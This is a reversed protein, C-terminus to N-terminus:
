LRNRFATPRGKPAGPVRAQLGASSTKRLPSRHAHSAQLRTAIQLVVIPVHERVFGHRRQLSEGPEVGIPLRDHSGPDFPARRASAVLLAQAVEIGVREDRSGLDLYFVGPGAGEDAAFNRAIELALPNLARTWRGLGVRGNFRADAVDRVRQQRTSIAPHEVALVRQALHGRHREVVLAVELEGDMAVGHEHRCGFVHGALHVFPRALEEPARGDVVPPPLEVEGRLEEPRAAEMEVIPMHPVRAAGTERCGDHIGREKDHVVILLEGPSTRRQRQVQRLNLGSLLRREPIVDERREFRVQSEGDTGDLHVHEDLLELRAKLQHLDARRKALVEDTEVGPAPIVDVADGVRHRPIRIEDVGVDVGDRHGVAVHPVVLVADPTGDVCGIREALVREPLAPHFGVNRHSRRSANLRTHLPRYGTAFALLTLARAALPDRMPLHDVDDPRHPFLGAFVVLEAPRKRWGAGRVM